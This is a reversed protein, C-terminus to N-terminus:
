WRPSLGIVLGFSPPRRYYYRDARARRPKKVTAPPQAQKPPTVVPNYGIAPTWRDTDPAPLTQPGLAAFRVGPIKPLQPKAQPNISGTVMDRNPKATPLPPAKAQVVDPAVHIGSLLSDAYIILGLGLCASICLYYALRRM